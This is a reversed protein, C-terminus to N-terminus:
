EIENFDLVDYAVTHYYGRLDKYQLYHSGNKSFVHLNAYRPITINQVKSKCGVLDLKVKLTKTKSLTEFAYYQLCLCTVLLVIFFVKYNGM